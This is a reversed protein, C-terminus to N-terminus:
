GTRALGPLGAKKVAEAFRRDDRVLGWSPDIHLLVLGPSGEQFAEEIYRFAEDKHGLRAHSRAFELPSVYETRATTQLYELELQAERKGIKLYGEEGQATKLLQLTLPDKEGAVEYGQALLNIAAQFQKQARKVQALSLYARHDEPSDRMVSRYAKEAEETRGMWLLLDAERLRWKLSIPDEDQAKRALALAEAGRKTAWLLWVYPEYAPAGPAQVAIKFQQEAEQWKRQIWFLESGLQGHM